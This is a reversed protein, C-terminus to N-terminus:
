SSRNSWFFLNILFVADFIHPFFHFISPLDSILRICNLQLVISCYGCEVWFADCKSGSRSTTSLGQFQECWKRFVLNNPWFYGLHAVVSDFACTYTTIAHIFWTVYLIAYVSMCITYVTRLLVHMFCKVQESDLSFIKCARRFCEVSNDQMLSFMLNPVLVVASFSLFIRCIPLVLFETTELITWAHIKM